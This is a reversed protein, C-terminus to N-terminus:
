GYSPREPLIVKGIGDPFVANALAARIEDTPDPLSKPDVERAPTSSIGASPSDVFKIGLAEAIGRLLAEVTPNRERWKSIMQVDYWSMKDVQHFTRGEAM